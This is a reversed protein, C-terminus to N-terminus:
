AAAQSALVAGWEAALDHEDDVLLRLMASVARFAEVFGHSPGAIMLGPDEGTARTRALLDTSVRILSPVTLVPQCRRTSQELGNRTRRSGARDATGRRASFTAPHGARVGLVRADLLCSTATESGRRVESQTNAVARLGQADATDSTMGM